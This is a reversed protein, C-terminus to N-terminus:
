ILKRPKHLRLQKCRLRSKLLKIRQYLFRRWLRIQSLRRRSLKTETRTRLGLTRLRAPLRRTFGPGHRFRHFRFETSTLNHNPKLPLALLVPLFHRLAARRPRYYKAKVSATILRRELKSFRISPTPTLSILALSPSGLLLGPQPIPSASRAFRLGGRTHFRRGSQFRLLQLALIFHDAELDENSEVLGDEGQGRKEEEEEDETIPALAELDYGGL